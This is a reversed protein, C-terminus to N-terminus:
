AYSTPVTTESKVTEMSIYASVDFLPVREVLRKYITDYHEVDHLVLKMIYDFNGTLRHVEVIEPVSTIAARFAELWEASHQATKVIVFVTMPLNVRRRDLIAVRKAIYGETTLRLIRRSCASVSLAVKDAIDNVPMDADSQLYALIRRDRDDLM